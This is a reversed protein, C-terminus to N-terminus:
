TKEKLNPPTPNRLIEWLGEWGNREKFKHGSPHHDQRTGAPSFIINPLNVWPVHGDNYQRLMQLVAFSGQMWEGRICALFQKGSNIKLVRSQEEYRRLLVLKDDDSRLLISLDLQELKWPSVPDPSEPNKNESMANGKPWRNMSHCKM